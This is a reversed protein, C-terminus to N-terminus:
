ENDCRILSRHQATASKEDQRQQVRGALSDIELGDQELGNESHNSSAAAAAAARSLRRCAVGRRVHLSDKVSDELESSVESDLTEDFSFSRRSGHPQDEVSLTPSQKATTADNSNAIVVDDEFQLLPEEIDSAESMSTISGDDDNDDDVDDDDDDDDDDIVKDMISDDLQSQTQPMPASCVSRTTAVIRCDDSKWLRLADPHSEHHLSTSTLMNRASADRKTDLFTTPIQSPLVVPEATDDITSVTELAPVAPTNNESVCSQHVAKPSDPPISTHQLASGYVTTAQLNRDSSSVNKLTGSEGTPEATAVDQEFVATQIRSQQQNTTTPQFSHDLCCSSSSDKSRTSFRKTMRRRVRMFISSSRRSSDKDKRKANQEDQHILPLSIHHKDKTDTEATEGDDIVDDDVHGENHNDKSNKMEQIARKGSLLEDLQQIAQLVSSSSSNGYDVAPNNNNTNHDPDDDCSFSSSTQRTNSESPDDDNDINHDICPTNDNHDNNDFPRSNNNNSFTSSCAASSTITSAATTGPIGEKKKKKRV